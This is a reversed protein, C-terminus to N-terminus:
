RAGGPKDMSPKDATPSDTAPSDTSPQVTSSGAPTADLANAEPVPGPVHPWTITVVTGEGPASTVIAEGGVNRVRETISVRVGLRERPVDSAIFGAGSDGIAVELGNPAIGRVSVWRAIEAGGAHQMSNVMAQIAASHLADATQIPVSGSGPNRVRVRFPMLLDSVSDVIKSALATLRMTSGDDPSVAAADRLHGIAKGAMTAALMQAEPTHARAASIFTTLVSDHVISDVEVREVETAHQRVARGYRELATAQASDVGTAALRLMTVIILIAAGLIIAYFGEVTALQWPAAGGEPTMRVLAYITPAVFLYIAGWRANFAIAAMATAVTLIYNLWHIGPVIVAGPVVTLPWSILAGLYIIAFMAHALRVSVQVISMVLVFLLSGFLAPVVIWLWLPYSQSMQGLLWPITQAGFVIGFGAVSRSIIKEVQKRSIPNRPQKVQPVPAIGVGSASMAVM